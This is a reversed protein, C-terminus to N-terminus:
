CVSLSEQKSYSAPVLLSLKPSIDGILSCSAAMAHCLTYLRTVLGRQEGYCGMEELLSNYSDILVIHLMYELNDFLLEM